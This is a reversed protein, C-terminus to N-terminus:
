GVGLLEEVFDDLEIIKFQRGWRGRFEKKKYAGSINKRFSCLEVKWGKTMAREVMKLFGQSYEAEAADGTALVITSPEEADVVSELIKLHLIEDVAQEVWKEPAYMVATTESGSSTTGVGNHYRKQRPTLEKAKHVRDLINTEYGIDKADQITPFNDSGVLVRKATPRGRELALSLNHFSIPQRQMRANPALGRALKLSDHFGIMISGTGGLTILGINELYPRDDVFEEQLKTVLKLKRASAEALASEPKRVSSRLWYRPKAVPWPVPAIDRHASNATDASKANTGQTDPSHDFLLSRIVSQRSQSPKIKQLEQESDNESSSPPLLQVARAKIAEDKKKMRLRKKKAKSPKQVSKSDYNEDNDALDAGEVEDRWRVGKPTTSDTGLDATTIEDPPPELPVDHAEPRVVPPALDLPQGLFEWIKDFNGLQSLVKDQSGDQDPTTPGSSPQCSSTDSTTCKDVKSSLSHILDIVPTLDWVEDLDQSRM